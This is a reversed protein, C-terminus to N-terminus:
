LREQAAGTSERAHRELNPDAGDRDGAAIDVPQAGEIPLETPGLRRRAHGLVDDELAVVPDHEPEERLGHVVFAEPRSGLAEAAERERDVALARVGDTRRV